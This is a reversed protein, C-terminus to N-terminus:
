APLALWTKINDAMLKMFAAETNDDLACSMIHGNNYGIEYYDYLLQALQEDSMTRVKDANTMPM